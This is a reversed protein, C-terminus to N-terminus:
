DFDKHIIAKEGKLEGLTRLERRNRTSGPRLTPFQIKRLDDKSKVKAMHTGDDLVMTEMRLETIFPVGLILPYPLKEFVFVNIAEVVNGLKIMIEPCAGWLPNTRTGVSNVNWKIDCDIMWQGKMYTDKSMLNLESGTDLLARIGGEAGLLQIEIEPCARAWYPRITEKKYDSLDVDHFAVRPEISPCVEQHDSSFCFVSGVEEVEEDEIENEEEFDEEYDYSLIKASLAHPGEKYVRKRRARELVKNQLDLRLSGFLDGNTFGRAEQQWFKEAIEEGEITKEVERSLLYGPGKRIAKKQTTTDQSTSAQPSESESAVPGKEQFRVEKQKFQRTPRSEGEGRQQKEKRPADEMPTAEHRRKELAANWAAGVEATISNVLVPESWGSRQRVCEALRKKEVVDLHDVSPLQRHVQLAFVSPDGYTAAANTVQERLRQEVLLKMGGRNVNMPVPEGSDFFSIKGEVFKVRRLRLAESLEVCDRRHHEKSDCWLCNWIKSLGAQSTGGRNKEELAQISLALKAIMDTLTAIDSGETSSSKVEKKGEDSSIPTTRKWDVVSAEVEQDVERRRRQKTVKHIAAEAEEWTVEEADPAIQDLANDLELRLHADAARILLGGRRLSVTTLDKSSLQSYRRNFERLLEQPGLKKNKEQVWALFTASTVRDPDEFRFEEKIKEEFTKWNKAENAFKIILSKLEIEVLTAFEQIAAQESIKHITAEMFYEKLYRTARRGDFLGLKALTAQLCKTIRSAEEKKQNEPAESRAKAEMLSLFMETMKEMSEVM